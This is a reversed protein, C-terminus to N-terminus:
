SSTRTFASSTTSAGQAPDIAIGSSTPIEARFNLDYYAGHLAGFTNGRVCIRRPYSTASNATSGWWTFFVHATTGNDVFTNSDTAKLAGDVRFEVKSVGSVDSANATVM